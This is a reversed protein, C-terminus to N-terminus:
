RVIRKFIPQISSDVKRTSREGQQEYVLCM